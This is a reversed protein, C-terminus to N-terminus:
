KEEEVWELERVEYLHAIRGLNAIHEEAAERTKFFSLCKWGKKNFVGYRCQKTQRSYKENNKSMIKEM